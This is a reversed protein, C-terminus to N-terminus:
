IYPSEYSYANNVNVICVFDAYLPNGTQQTKNVLLRILATVEHDFARFRSAVPNKLAAKEEYSVLENSISDCYDNFASIFKYSEHSIKIMQLLVDQSSILLGTMIQDLASDVHKFLSAIDSTQAVNEELSSYIPHMVDIATFSIFSSAFHHVAHRMENVDSQFDPVSSARKWCQNMLYEIHHWILLMRFIFSYKKQISGNFVLSIPWEVKAKLDFYEWSSKPSFFPKKLVKDFQDVDITAIRHTVYAAVSFTTEAIVSSFYKTYESPLSSALNADLAPIHLEDKPEEMTESLLRLFKSLWDGRACLFVSKFMKVYHMLNYNDRLVNVLHQSANIAASDIATERQIMDITLKMDENTDIHCEALVAQSKGANLMARIASSSIFRPIFEDILIYKKEWYQNEYDNKLKQRTIKDNIRIFFENYPDDINGHYIWQKIFEILPISSCKFLYSFLKKVKPSGRFVSLRSHIESLIQCGSKDEIALILDALQQLLESYGQINGHLLSPTLNRSQEFKSINERYENMITRLSSSLAHAVRGYEFLYHSSSYNNIITFNECLPLIQQVFSFTSDRIKCTAQYTGDSNKNIYIGDGGVLCFLLDKVIIRNEENQPLSSLDTHEDPTDEQCVIESEGLELWKPINFM